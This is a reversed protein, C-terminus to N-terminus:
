FLPSDLIANCAEFDEVDPDFIIDLKLAKSIPTVAKLAMDTNVVIQTPIAKFKEFQKVFEEDIIQQSDSLHTLQMGLIMGSNYAIWLAIKSFFPKEKGEMIPNPMYFYSFCMAAKKRELGKIKNLLFPNVTRKTEEEIVEPEPFYVNKWSFDDGKKEPTRVLLVGSSPHIINLNNKAENAVVIAQKIINILFAAQDDNIHWPFFGPEMERIHVYKNRGRFKLGLAKYAAKDVKDTEKNDVFEVKLMYQELAIAMQDLPEADGSSALDMYSQFGKNGLYVGLAFVQGLEGMVCCYGVLDSHPDKVGFIDSDSLWKWSQQDRFAIAAEFLDQWIQKNQTTIKM